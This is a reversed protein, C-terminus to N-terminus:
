QRRSRRDRELAVEDAIVQESLGDCRRAVDATADLSASACRTLRRDQLGRRIEHSMFESCTPSPSNGAEHDNLCLNLEDSRRRDTAIREEVFQKRAALLKDHFDPHKALFAERMPRNVGQECAIETEQKFALELCHSVLAEQPASLELPPACGTIVTTMAVVLFRCLTRPMEPQHCPESLAPHGSLM